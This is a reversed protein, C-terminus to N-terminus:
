RELELTKDKFSIRVTRFRCLIDEGLVGDMSAGTRRNVETMDLVGVVHDKLSWEGLTISLRRLSAESIGAQQEINLRRLEITGQAFEPRVLTMGAGTDLLLRATKGNVRVNVFIRAGDINLPIIFTQAHALSTLLIVTLMALLRDPIRV